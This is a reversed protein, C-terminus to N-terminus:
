LRYLRWNLGITAGWAPAHISVGLKFAEAPDSSTAGWAPAHISVVLMQIESRNDYDCGM